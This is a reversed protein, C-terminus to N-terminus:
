ENSAFCQSVLRSAACHVDSNKHTMLEVVKEFQQDTIQGVITDLGTAEVIENMNVLSLKMITEDTAALGISSLRFFSDLHSQGPNLKATYSILRYISDLLEAEWIVLKQEALHRVCDLVCTERLVKRAMSEGSSAINGLFLFVFNLTKLDKAGQDMKEILLANLTRLIQSQGHTIDQELSEDEVQQLYAVDLNSTLLLPIDKDFCCSLNQLIWLAELKLYYVEEEPASFSLMQKCMLLISTNCVVQETAPAKEVTFIKRMSSVLALQHGLGYDASSQLREICYQLKSIQNVFLAFDSM